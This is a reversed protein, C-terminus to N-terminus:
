AVKKEKIETANEIEIDFDHLYINDYMEDSFESLAIEEAEVDDEATIEISGWVDIKYQVEYKKLKEEEVPYSPILINITKNCHPYPDDNSSYHKKDIDVMDRYKVPCNTLWENIQVELSSVDDESLEQYDKQNKVTYKKTIM